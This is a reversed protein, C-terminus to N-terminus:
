CIARRQLLKNTAGAPPVIARARSLNTLNAIDNLLFNESRRQVFLAWRDSVCLHPTATPVPSARDLKEHDDLRSQCMRLIPEFTERLFSCRLNLANSLISRARGSM